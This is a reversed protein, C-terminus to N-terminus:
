CHPTRSHSNHALGPPLSSPSSAQLQSAPARGSSGCSSEVDMSRWSLVTALVIETSSKRMTVKRLLAAKARHCLPASLNLENQSRQRLM